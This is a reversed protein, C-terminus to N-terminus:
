LKTEKPLPRKGELKPAIRRYTVNIVYDSFYPGLSLALSSDRQKSRKPTSRSERPRKETKRNKQVFIREIREPKTKNSTQNTRSVCRTM